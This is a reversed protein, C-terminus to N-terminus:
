GLHDPDVAFWVVLAAGRSRGGWAFGLLVLLWLATVSLWVLFLWLLWLSDCLTPIVGLRDPDGVFWVVLAAGRSRGGWAFVLLWLLWLATVSIPWCGCWFCGFCGFHIVWWAACWWDYRVDM